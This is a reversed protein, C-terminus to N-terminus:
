NTHQSFAKWFHIPKIVHLEYDKQTSVIKNLFVNWTLLYGDRLNFATKLIYALGLLLVVDYVEVYTM